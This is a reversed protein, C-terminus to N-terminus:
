DLRIFFIAVNSQTMSRIMEILYFLLSKLQDLLALGEHVVSRLFDHLSLSFSPLMALVPVVVDVLIELIELVHTSTCCGLPTQSGFYIHRRIVARESIRDNIARVRGGMM